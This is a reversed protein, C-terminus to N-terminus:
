AAVAATLSPRPTNVRWEAGEPWNDDLYKLTHNYREVTIGGGARMLAIKKSEGYLRSSLTSQPIGAVRCYEDFLLFLDAIQIMVVNIPKDVTRTM